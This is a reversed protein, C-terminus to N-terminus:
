GGCGGSTVKVMRTARYLKGDAEVVAVLTGTGGLKFRLALRPEVRPTFRARALLPFPNSDSLLIMSQLGPLDTRVEVPVNRGNEAIDPAEITIRDSDEAERGEFLLPEAASLNEAHFADAPWAALLRRPILGVSLAISVPAAMAAAQLLTRRQM